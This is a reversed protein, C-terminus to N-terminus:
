TTGRVRSVTPSALPDGSFVFVTPTSLKLEYVLPVAAGQVVLLDVPKRALEAALPALRLLNDGGYRYDIELNDNERYGFERLGGRFAELFPTLSPERQATLWGIRFVKAAAQAGCHSGAFAIIASSALFTRRSM